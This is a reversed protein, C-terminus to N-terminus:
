NGDDADASSVVIAASAGAAAGAAAAPAASHGAGSAQGQQQAFVGEATPRGTPAFAVRGRGGTQKPSTMNMDRGEGFVDQSQDLVVQNRDVLQFTGRPILPERAAYEPHAAAEKKAKVEEWPVQTYETPDAVAGPDGSPGWVKTEKLAAKLACIWKNRRQVKLAGQQWNSKYKIDAKVSLKSQDSFSDVIIDFVPLFDRRESKVFALMRARLAELQEFTTDWAVEFTFPESMQQSRRHNYIFKGNLMVNPAQVQCGRTDIFITSLLRIEKVTYTNGDIDVRDGVDYMHKVFLFIISALIEQMSSGILWSLALVFAAAGSLLTSVAADLIVAFVVGAAAVYITMLINDLRGVASDIDRMSSALALRERHLDMCALEMEERTADGNGDRDFMAFAEQATEANPFYEEIDKILLVDSGNKRFSYFLRRALLRTKNASSLAQAVIAQPSNPQLVSSGLIETAVNGFAQTTTQAAGKIGKLATRLLRNPDIKGQGGAPGDHLTDIRGPQDSSNIYLTVLTRTNRRQAELRDAYSREHFSTAIAQIFIKEGLLIASCILIGLLIRWCVVLARKDSDSADSQQNNRILPQFSIFSALAWLFIAVYRHIAALWDAYKRVSLAIVGLTYRLIKPLVFSFALAAWYGAWWVSLWVSWWFLITKWWNGGGLPGTGQKKYVTLGLIGPIWLCGLIPIIFLAWRTVISAGILYHYFRTVTNDPVDGKAVRYQQPGAKTYDFHTADHIFSSNRSNEVHPSVPSNSTGTPALHDGLRSYGGSANGKEVDNHPKPNRETMQYTSAM